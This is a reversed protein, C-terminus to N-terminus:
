THAESKHHSGIDLDFLAGEPLMFYLSEHHFLSPVYYVPLM